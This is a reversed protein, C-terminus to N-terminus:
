LALLFAFCVLAFRLMSDGDGQSNSWLDMSFSYTLQVRAQSEQMM